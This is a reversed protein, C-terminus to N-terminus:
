SIRSRSSPPISRPHTQKVLTECVENSCRVAEDRDELEVAKMSNVIAQTIREQDFPVIKGDRKRICYNEDTLHLFAPKERTDSEVYAQAM